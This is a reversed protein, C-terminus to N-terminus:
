VSGDAEVTSGPALVQFSAVRADPAIRVNRAEVAGVRARAGVVVDRLYSHPGVRAGAAVRTRGRLVTGPLIAADPELLVTADVHTTAPDWIDVGRSLWGEIIRRRVVAEAAALQRRDNVGAVEEGDALLVAATEHGGEHLVAVLDTLYYEGQANARDIRRLAPWLVGARVVMVGSNVERIARQAGTADAEEVIRAPQGDRAREVRGYGHPDELEVTLLTLAAASAAHAVLLSRITSGELLPTDGPVILVDGDEGVADGVVPRAVAVAHGTGLQEAQHVFVVERRAALEASLEKEVWAAQHGVVVVTAAVEPLALAELVYATLPRGCLRALPKPRASRMRTGAGAALVVAVTAREM